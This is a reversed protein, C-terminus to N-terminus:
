EFTAEVFPSEQTVWNNNGLGAGEDSWLTNQKYGFVTNSILTDTKKVVTYGIGLVTNLM